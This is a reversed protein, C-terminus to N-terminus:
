LALHDLSTIAQCERGDRPPQTARYIGGERRICVALWGLANPAVFDKAPNDAVYACHRHSVGLREAMLEFAAPHPKSSDPGLEATLVIFDVRPQLGLAAVKNQQTRLPGDSILGLRVRTRLRTLADDADPFLSITPPHNRYVEVMRAVLDADDQHGIERLLTNFVRPRHETDFLRRMAAASEAPSGFISTFAEAVAAFGSFAFQREPYLTDDLDFVVADIRSM